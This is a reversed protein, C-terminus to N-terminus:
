VVVGALWRLPCPEIARGGGGCLEFCRLREDSDSRQQGGFDGGSGSHQGPEDDVAVARGAGLLLLACYFFSRWSRRGGGRGCGADVGEVGLGGGDATERAHEALVVVVNDDKRAGKQGAEGGHETAAGGGQEAVAVSARAFRVGHKPVLSFRAHEGERRGFQDVQEVVPVLLVRRSIGHHELDAAGFYVLVVDKVQEVPSRGARQAFVRGPLEHHSAPGRFAHQGRGLGFLQTTVDLEDHLGLALMGEDHARWLIKGVHVRQTRRMTGYPARGSM